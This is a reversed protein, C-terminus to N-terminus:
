ANRRLGSFAWVQLVSRLGRRWLPMKSPGSDRWAILEEVAQEPSTFQGTIRSVYRPYEILAGAVLCDVDLVKTRRQSTQMDSTLQWGAYFPLGYCTVPVERLLAEFGILSTMTHVADVNSLIEIPDVTTVIENCFQSAMEDDNGARRLGAIVDPHPKYVIYSQPNAQRVARLLGINTKVDIAGFEISADSEVQGAVLIVHDVNLPRKWGKGALNYKSIGASVIKKRLKKARSIMSADYTTKQLIEELKSPRTADYYLGVDDIMWSLPQVLDAGLGSSRLFGDEMALVRASKHSAASGWRAVNAGEPIDNLKNVFQVTSGGLIKKVFPIKWRSFNYAYIKEPFQLMMRRQLSLHEMVREIQCENRAEPDMYRPYKILAGYVVQELSVPSRRDSAAVEDETLGWGAYFPMGFCRVRKGWILAEFGVQSTVTYVVSANKILRVPHCYEAIVQVREMQQLTQLDYHSQKARTFVDPHLKVIITSKPNEFLAKELMNYFSHENAMGYAISMDAAVQDLVLVYKEPLEGSYERAGNYKSLGFERWKGIVDKAREHEDASLQELIAGEIQSPRTADYYIGQNDFVLSLTDDMRGCSRLFGDELLIFGTNGKAAIAVARDGSWKRGWGITTEPRLKLLRSYFHPSFGLIARLTPDISLDMSTAMTKKPEPKTNELFRRAILYIWLKLKAARRFILGISGYNKKIRGYIM